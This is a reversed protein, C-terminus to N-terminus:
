KKEKREERIIDLMRVMSGRTPIQPPESRLKRRVRAYCGFLKSIQNTNKEVLDYIKNILSISVIEQERRYM